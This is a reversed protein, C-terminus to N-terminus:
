TVKLTAKTKIYVRDVEEEFTVSDNEWPKRIRSDLSDLYETGGLGTVAAQSIDGVGFYTHLACTFEMPTDGNNNVMMRQSLTGPLLSIDITLKFKHPYTSLQEESPRLVQSLASLIRLLQIALM